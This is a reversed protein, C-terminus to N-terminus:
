DNDDEEVERGVAYGVAGGATGALLESCASLFTACALACLLGSFVRKTRPAM